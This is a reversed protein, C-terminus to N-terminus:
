NYLESNTNFLYQYKGDGYIDIQQIVDVIQDNIKKDM